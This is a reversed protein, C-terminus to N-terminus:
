EARAPVYSKDLLEQLTEQSIRVGRGIRYVAIQGLSIRNRLTKPKINLISAAEEVRFLASPLANRRVGVPLAIGSERIASRSHGEDSKSKRRRSNTVSLTLNRSDAATMSIVGKLTDFSLAFVSLTNSM